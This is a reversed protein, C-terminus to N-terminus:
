DRAGCLPLFGNSRIVQLQDNELELKDLQTTKARLLERLDAESGTSDAM